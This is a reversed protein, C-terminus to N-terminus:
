SKKKLCVQKNAQQPHKAWYAVKNEEAKKGLEALEEDTVGFTEKLYQDVKDPFMGMGPAYYLRGKSDKRLIRQLDKDLIVNDAQQKLNKM